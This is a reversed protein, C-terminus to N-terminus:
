YKGKQANQVFQREIGLRKEASMQHLATECAESCPYVTVGNELVKPSAATVDVSQGCFCRATTKGDTTTATNLTREYPFAAWYAAVREARDTASTQELQSHCEPSCCYLTTADHKVALPENTVAFERGCACLATRQGDADMVVVNNLREFKATKTAEQKDQADKDGALAGGCVLALALMLVLSRKM